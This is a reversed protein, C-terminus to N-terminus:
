CDVQIINIKLIMLEVIEMHKMDLILMFVFINIYFYQQCLVTIKFILFFYIFLKNNIYKANVLTSKKNVFMTYLKTFSVDYKKFQKSLWQPENWPKHPSINWETNKSNEKWSKIIRGDEDYDGDSDLEDTWEGIKACITFPVPVVEYNGLVKDYKLARFTNYLHICFIMVM